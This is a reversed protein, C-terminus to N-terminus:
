TDKVNACFSKNNTPYKGAEDERSWWQVGEPAFEFFSRVLPELNQVTAPEGEGLRVLVAPILANLVRVGLTTQVMFESPKKFCEPAVAELAKWYNV